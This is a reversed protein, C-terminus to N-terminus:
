SFLIIMKYVLFDNKQGFSVFNKDFFKLTRFLYNTPTIHYFYYIQIYIIVFRIILFHLTYKNNFFLFYFYREISYLCSRKSMKVRPAQCWNLHQVVGCITDIDQPGCSAYPQASSKKPEDVRNSLEWIRSRIFHPVWSRARLFFDM